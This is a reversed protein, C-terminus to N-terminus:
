FSGFAALGAGDRSAYPTILATRDGEKRPASPTLVWWVVGVVLLGAGVGTVITSTNALSRGAELGAPECLKNADCASNRKNISALGIGLGVGVGVVGVGTVIMPLVKSSGSTTEVPKQDVDLIISIAKDQNDALSAVTEFTLHGPAEARVSHSGPDVPVPTNWAAEPLPVGDLTVKANPVKDVFKVVLHPVRPELADAEAKAFDAWQRREPKPDLPARRAVERFDRAASATMGLGKEVYALNRLAGLAGTIDYARKFADRAQKCKALDTPKEDCKGEENLRVGKDFLDKAISQEQATPEALAPFSAVLLMTALGFSLVRHTTM